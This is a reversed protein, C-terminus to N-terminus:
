KTGNCVFRQRRITLTSQVVDRFLLKNVVVSVRSRVAGAGFEINQRGAVVTVVVVAPLRLLLMSWHVSFTFAYHIFSEHFAAFPTIFTTLPTWKEQVNMIANSRHHDLGTLSCNSM